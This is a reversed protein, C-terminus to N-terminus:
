LNVDSLTLNLVIESPRDYRKRDEIRNLSETKISSFLTGSYHIYLSNKARTMGIYLKRREEDTDETVNDLFMHVTSFEHGKAKHITSVFIKGQDDFTDELQSERVFEEFDSFYIERPTVSEFLQILHLCNPLLQSQHFRSQLAVKAFNWLQRSVIPDGQLRKQLYVLFSRIELLNYLHVDGRSLILQANIGAKQLANFILAAEENTSTLVACDKTEKNESLINIIANEFDHGRHHILTVLGSVDRHAVAPKTKMRSSISSAYVNYFDVIQRTSRFNETLEYQMADYKSLLERM